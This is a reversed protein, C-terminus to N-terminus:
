RSNNIITSLASWLFISLRASDNYSVSFFYNINNDVSKMPVVRCNGVYQIDRFDHCPPALGGLFLAMMSSIDALSAALRAFTNRM